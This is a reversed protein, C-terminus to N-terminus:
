SSGRTALYFRAAGMLTFVVGLLFGFSAIGGGATLTRVIIVLGFCFIIVSFARTALTYGESAPM